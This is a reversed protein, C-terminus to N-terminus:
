GRPYIIIFSQFCIIQHKVQRVAIKILLGFIFVRVRKYYSDSLLSIFDGNMKSMTMKAKLLHTRQVFKNAKHIFILMRRNLETPFFM